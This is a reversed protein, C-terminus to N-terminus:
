IFNVIKLIYVTFFALFLGVIGTIIGVRAMENTKIFGTGHALANPPTSIPLVMGISCALAATIIISSVGGMNEINHLTTGMIALLPMLLNATATNSMFNSMVLALLAMGGIILLTSYNEFPISEILRHALGTKEMALGLAIGGSVLWLVGWSIKRLEAQTIVKTASFVGVPILAVVYSNMGHLFDTLWLLVTVAFTIYVIKAQRSKISHAGIELKITKQQSPYLKTLLFWSFALLIIVYPVGFSMWKGFGIAHEGVLYKMAIANPPTGIPTGIGGINAAIPISLALATKGKDGDPFLLLVPALISLMMAATATNSMFMSFAATVIMLGLMVINPRNGFPKLMVKALTQDLRFKTAALALFFGGLFLVIIPSAFTAMIDKYSLIKGYVEPAETSRFLIFSKDSIMLLELVIILVSTAYIPIPELVWFLTAFVFLAIVRKEIITLGAIGFSEVPIFLIAVPILIAIILKFNKILLNKKM